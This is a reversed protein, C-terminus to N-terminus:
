PRVPWGVEYVGVLLLNKDVTDPLDRLAQRYGVWATKVAEPMVVDNLGVWDCASLLEARRSRLEQMRYALLAEKKEANYRLALGGNELRYCEVIDLRLLDDPVVIGVSGEPPQFPVGGGVFGGAGGYDIGVIELREENVYVTRVM